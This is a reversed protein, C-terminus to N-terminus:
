SPPMKEYSLGNGVTYDTIQFFLSGVEVPIKFFFCLSKTEKNYHSNMIHYVPTRDVM